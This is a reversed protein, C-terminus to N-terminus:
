SIEITSNSVQSENREFSLDFENWNNDDSEVM